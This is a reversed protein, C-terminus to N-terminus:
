GLLQPCHRKIHPRLEELATDFAEVAKQIEGASMPFSICLMVRKPTYIGRNKLALSLLERLPQTASWDAKASRMDVVDPVCLHINLLSGMGTMQGRIGKRAFLGQIGERLTDGLRNIKEILPEDIEQMAAVGAAMTIANGNFTGSHHMPAPRKPSFIDMIDARGGFAGIPLGGGIIKGFTTMDPAVGCIKQYGGISTRLTIIEDFVLILDYRATIERLFRLFEDEAVIMGSFGMIPEVIVAAIEDKHADIIRKTAEIDNFPAILIDQLVGETIGRTEPIALPREVPGAQSLDPSVSIETQEANGHFGGEMKLVKNKGTLARAARLAYMVAETGTNCFRLTDISSVRECIMRALQAQNRSPAGFLIGDEAQESMARKVRPHGHGLILVTYNNMFDIYENGDVDVLTCGEARDVYIPYPHADTASRTSGGPLFACAEEDAVRSGPTRAVYTKEIETEGTLIRGNM